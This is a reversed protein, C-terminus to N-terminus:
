HHGSYNHLPPGSYLALYYDNPLSMEPASLAYILVIQKEAPRENFLFAMWFNLDRLDRM